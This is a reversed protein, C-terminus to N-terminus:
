WNGTRWSEMLQKRNIPSHIFKDINYAWEKCVLRSRLLSVPDLLGFIKAAVEPFYAFHFLKAYLDPFGQQFDHVLDKDNNEEETQLIKVINPHSSKRELSRQKFGRNKNQLQTKVSKKTTIMSPIKPFHIERKAIVPFPMAAQSEPQVILICDQFFFCTFFDTM